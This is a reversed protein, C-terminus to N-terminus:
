FLNGVRLIELFFLSINGPGTKIMAQGFHSKRIALFVIWDPFVNPARRQDFPLTSAGM